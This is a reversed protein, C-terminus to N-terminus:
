TIRILLRDNLGERTVAAAGGGSVGKKYGGGLYLAPDANRHVHTHKM